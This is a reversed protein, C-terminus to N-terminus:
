NFDVPFMAPGTRAYSFHQEMRLFPHLLPGDSFPIM